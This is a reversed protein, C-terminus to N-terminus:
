SGASSRGSFHRIVKKFGSVVGELYNRNMGNFVVLPIWTQLVEEATPCHVERYDMSTGGQEKLPWRGAFFSHNQFLPFRYVPEPLYRELLLIGEAKLAQALADRDVGLVQPAMRVTFFWYSHVDDARRHPLSIGPLGDLAKQLYDGIETRGRVEAELGELQAAAVASQPESIRYNPALISPNRGGGARDYGKDGFLQLRPGFEASSSGVMGGDGCSIHKFDNFSYCGFDGYTGVPVGDYAAGWSQACDEILILDHAQALKRLAGLDCPNGALHVALIAKTRKTIKREVDLPDLNYTRSDIDAFVPVGQQYLIGILSGMDTVCSTIVEDGPSIGAAAVAIHIAATGSSCPMLFDLPYHRRFGNLLAETQANKWYFLSPQSLMASLRELEGSGWRAPRVPAESISSKGGAFAPTDEPTSTSSM